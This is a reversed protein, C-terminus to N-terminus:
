EYENVAGESTVSLHVTKARGIIDIMRSAGIRGDSHNFITENLGIVSIADPLESVEDWDESRADYSGGSFVIVEGEIEVVGWGSGARGSAAYVQARDLSERIIKTAAVTARASFFETGLVSSVAGLLLIISTVLIIEIFTFGRLRM